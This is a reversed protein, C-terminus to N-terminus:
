FTYYINTCLSDNNSSTKVNEKFNLYSSTITGDSYLIIQDDDITTLM